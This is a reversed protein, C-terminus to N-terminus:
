KLNFDNEIFIIKNKNDNEKSLDWKKKLQEMEEINENIKNESKKEIYILCNNLM